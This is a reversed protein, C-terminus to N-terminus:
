RHENPHTFHPVLILVALALFAGLIALFERGLGAALGVAATLWIGAATTLGLVHNPDEHKIITGAGLFGIGTVVGQMIRSLDSQTMGAQQAAAVLLAAGVAVLVHTRIGAAKGAHQRQYGLLGGLVAAVLLRVFVRAITVPGPLDGFDEGIGQGLQQWWNMTPM